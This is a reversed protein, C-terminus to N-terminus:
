KSDLKFEFENNGGDVVEAELESKVNYRAPLVKVEVPVKANLDVDFEMKATARYAVIEVRYKGPTAGQEQALEFKGAVVEGGVTTGPGNPYFTIVGKELPKNDVTVSGTMPQYNEGGNCGLGCVLFIVLWNCRVRNFACPNKM